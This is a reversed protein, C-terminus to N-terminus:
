KALFKEIAAIAAKETKYENSCTSFGKFFRAPITGESQDAYGVWAVFKGNLAQVSARKSGKSFEKMEVGM